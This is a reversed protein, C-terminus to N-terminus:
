AVRVSIVARPGRQREAVLRRVGCPPEVRAPLEALLLEALLLLPTLLSTALPRAFLLGACGAVELGQRRVEAGAVSCNSARHSLENPSNWDGLIGPCRSSPM